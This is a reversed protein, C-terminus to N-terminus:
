GEPMVSSGDTDAYPLPIVAVYSMYPPYYVMGAAQLSLTLNEYQLYNLV